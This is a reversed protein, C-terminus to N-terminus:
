RAAPGFHRLLYTMLTEREAPPASGSWAEMQHLTKDWGTSDKHQQTILMASHCMLCRSEAIMRGAGPPLRKASSARRLPILEVGAAHTRAVHRAPESARIASVALVLAAAAGLSAM